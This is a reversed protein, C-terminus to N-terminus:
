FKFLKAPRLFQASIKQSTKGAKPGFNNRNLYKEMLYKNLLFASYRCNLVPSSFNKPPGCNPWEQYLIYFAIFPVSHTVIKSSCFANSIKSHIKVEKLGLMMKPPLQPLISFQSSGFASGGDPFKAQGFRHITRYTSGEKQRERSEIVNKM